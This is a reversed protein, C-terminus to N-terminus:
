IPLVSVPIGNLVANGSLPDVLQEDTLVNSNVGAHAAAVGLRAADSDHGWGHPISIVGPMIEAIVEVPVEIEGARSSVRALGGDILGIREADIGNVQMTCREPGSVLKPLNHMWSNNSRLDRRGILVMEERRRGLSAELRPLDAVIPEPCLEVKGSATRLLEPIRPELAGLDVGHPNQELLDLSLGEGGAQESRSPKGNLGAGYPGCRLLLDLIREPGRREGLAAVVDAPEMGEAPSGETVTERRAAEFAVFEDIADVDADPGQGTVVALLRLMTRWEDVMGDAVPMLPPSYNAVNRIALQYLALDYHGRALPSPVPLIVDARSTTENLYCDVSVMFDLSGIAAGLRGANPTSLLPNGAITILARIRSEGPTDIEEALCAVPLEGFAEGLGRVRTQWRGIAIGRGRGPAGTANTAAAAAKAFMAGGARDLNGTLVNVVDVLWSALTGYEQTTTGIRAYVAATKAAALERAIRRIQEAEIGCSEAVADPAFPALLEAISDLGNIHEALPGPDALSEALLTHAVAALLHADRGPRIYHHEDAEKATRTHRPDVVVVKGGRARIARIRGRMDPATLLSGNSAMPNAGLILLHDTRDLDPVPVSLATGFMLGASVQKPMQDVTSASYVNKSGLGKLLARLHVMGDLTHANPNGVYAAVANRDGDAYIPGLGADIRTFAEDWSAERHKDGDRILPKTLRDPDAHLAGLNAGKPCIFGASFVDEADGRVALVKGDAITLELGCTAECLPCTRIQTEPM